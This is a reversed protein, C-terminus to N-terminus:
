LLFVVVNQGVLLLATFISIGIRSWFKLKLEKLREEDLKERISISAQQRETWASNEDEPNKKFTSLLENITLISKNKSSM